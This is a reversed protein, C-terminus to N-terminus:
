SHIVLQIGIFWLLRGQKLFGLESAHVFVAINVLTDLIQESFTVFHEM